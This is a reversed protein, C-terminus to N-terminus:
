EAAAFEAGEKTAGAVGVAFVNLFNFLCSTDCAGDTVLALNDLFAGAAAFWKIGAVTIGIAFISVPTFWGTFFAGGAAAEEDETGFICNSTGRFGAVELFGNFRSGFSSM